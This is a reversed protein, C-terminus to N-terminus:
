LFAEVPENKNRQTSNKDFIKLMQMNLQKQPLYSTMVQSISSKQINYYGMDIECVSRM